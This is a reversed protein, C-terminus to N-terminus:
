RESGVQARAAPALAAALLALLLRPFLRRVAFFALM